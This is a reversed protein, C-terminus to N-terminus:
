KKPLTQSPNTRIRLINTSNVLSTVQNQIKNNPSKQNGSEIPKNQNEIEQHNLRQVNYTEMIKQQKM